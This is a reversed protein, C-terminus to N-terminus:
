RTRSRHRSLREYKNPSERARKQPTYFIGKSDLNKCEHCVLNFFIHVHPMQVIVLMKYFLIASNKIFKLQVNQLLLEPLKYQSTTYFNSQRRLYVTSFVSTETDQLVNNKSNRQTPKSLM